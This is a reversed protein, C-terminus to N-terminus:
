LPDTGISWCERSNVRDGKFASRQICVTVGNGSGFDGKGPQWKIILRKGGPAVTWRMLERVSGNYKDDRIDIQRPLIRDKFRAQRLAIVVGECAAQGDRKGLLQYVGAPESGHVSIASALDVSSSALTCAAACFWTWRNM